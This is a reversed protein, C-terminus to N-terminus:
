IVGRVRIQGAGGVGGNGSTTGGGGGGGGGSPFGGAGGVGGTGSSKGGGGGGGQSNTGASGAGGSSSGGGGGGGLTESAAAGAAGGAGGAQNAPKRGGGGGGGGGLVSSAGIFITSGNGGSAGAGGGSVSSSVSTLVASSESADGGKPNGGKVNNGGNLGGVGGTLSILSGFSSTGGAGGDSSTSAGATGGAGVTVTETTGVDGTALVKRFYGGGSGGGSGNGDSPRGGGGGGPWVETDFDQYGPPKTFTGSSTFTHSFGKLVISNFNSGDCQILRTEGPYMVFTTLGDITESSNPDLTINGSGSNRYYCFWGSALTAAATFTQTFTNATADVLNGNDDADLAVNSTVATRTVSSGGAAVVATGDAKTYSTCRYDGTAYEVFEAEDGAATTINAAGPLVLDTAHHTLILAGDFHL